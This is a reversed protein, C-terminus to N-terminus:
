AHASDPTSVAGRTPRSWIMEIIFLSGALIAFWLWLPEREEESSHVGQETTLLPSSQGGMGQMLDISSLVEPMSEAPSLVVELWQDGLRFTGPKSAEFVQEDEGWTEGPELVPWARSSLTKRDGISLEMILPLFSNRMPLDTWSVNMRFPLFIARGGGAMNRVLALPRGERDRLPVEVDEGVQQMIGFRHIASLYLDRAAKGAFVPNLSSEEDLAKIRFPDGLRVAGGAVRLFKFDFLKTERLASVTKVFPQGPTILAVGGRNLFGLLSSALEQEKFWDGLGIVLLMELKSQEDGLRLADAQDQSWEWRNWGNDGASSVATKLFDREEVTEADQREPMWFAFRRAPPAKLWLARKDDLAFSDESELEVFAESFDGSKLIFQAQASGLPPLNIEVRQRVEGGATLALTSKKSEEDWNRVITWIRVKGPGAPVARSEVVSLNNSRKSQDTSGGVRRLDITIGSRQLDRYASQWDSQQFDSIVVLTKETAAPSFLAPARDLLIQANGRKWDFGLGEIVEKLKAEGVGPKWEGIINQGFAVLGVKGKAEDILSLAIEKAEALGNWGAMSPTLDIAILTEKGQEMVVPNSDNKWYPDALLASLILFLLIRLLLLPIDSPKKKGTRPIRSPRIFRLSPFPHKRTVQRYAMHALIPLGVALATWLAAPQAFEIM